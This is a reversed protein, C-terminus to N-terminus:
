LYFIGIADYPIWHQSLNNKTDPSLTSIWNMWDMAKSNCLFAKVIEQTSPGYTQNM